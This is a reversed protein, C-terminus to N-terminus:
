LIKYYRRKRKFVRQIKIIRLKMNHIFKLVVKRLRRRIIYKKIHRKLFRDAQKMKKFIKRAKFGRFLKQIEKVQEMVALGMTSDLATRVDEKMFIKTM